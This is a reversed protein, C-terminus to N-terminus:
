NFSHKTYTEGSGLKASLDYSTCPSTKDGKCGAPAPAYAYASDTPSGSVLQTQSSNPSLSNPDTGPMHAQRWTESNLSELSPYSGDQAYVSELQAQLAHIDTQYKVDKAKTQVGNLGAMVLIIMLISFLAALSNLVLGVIGLTKNHSKKMAIISCALGAPWFVFALVIGIIGLTNSEHQAAPPGYPQQPPMGPGPM